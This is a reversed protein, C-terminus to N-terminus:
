RIPSKRTLQTAFDEPLHVRLDEKTIHVLPEKTVLYDELQMYVEVLATKDAVSLDTRRQQAATIKRVKDLIPDVASPNSILQAAYTM